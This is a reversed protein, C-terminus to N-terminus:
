KAVCGIAPVSNEPGVAACLPKNSFFVLIIQSTSFVAKLSCSFANSIKEFNPIRM